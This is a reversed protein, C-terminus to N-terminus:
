LPAFPAISRDLEEVPNVVPIDEDDVPPRANSERWAVSREVRLACVIAGVLAGALGIRVWNNM